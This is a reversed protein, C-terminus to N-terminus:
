CVTNKPLSSGFLDPHDEFIELGITGQGEIIDDENFPHIFTLNKKQQIELAKAYADDYFHLM